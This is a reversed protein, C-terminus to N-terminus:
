IYEEQSIFYKNVFNDRHSAVQTELNMHFLHPILGLSRM